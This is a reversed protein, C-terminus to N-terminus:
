GFADAWPNPDPQEPVIMGNEGKSVEPTEVAAAPETEGGKLDPMFTETDLDQIFKDLNSGNIEFGEGPTYRIDGEFTTSLKEFAQRYEDWTKSDKLGGDYEFSGRAKIQGLWTGAGPKDDESGFTLDYYGEFQDTANDIQSLIGEFEAMAQPTSAYYWLNDNVQEAMKQLVSRHQPYMTEDVSPKLRKAFDVMTDKREQGKDELSKFGANRNRVYDATNM